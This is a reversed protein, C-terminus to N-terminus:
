GVCMALEMVRQIKPRGYVAGGTLVLVNESIQVDGAGHTYRM